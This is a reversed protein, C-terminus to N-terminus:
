RPEAKRTVLLHFHRSSDPYGYRFPLPRAPQSRWLARFEDNTARGTRLFSGLFTGYTEQVFGARKAFGPPIGTSDSVMFVMNDLLYQRMLSFDPRWLLYSAAKTMAAVRGKRELHRLLAPDKKLPGDALNAAIHRHVRLPADPSGCPRFAIEANAFTPAFDPPTWSGKLSRARERDEALIEDASYYHLGGDAEIRFYRLSVPEQGHAALAVLFFALQGPIDGRQGRMLTASTSNELALLPAVTRRVQGLSSALADGELSRLRRPDGTLELSLTTIDTADPYTTLASLLDGGGFPYVVTTPLGPPRLRALFPSAVSLYRKRYSEIRPTFAACHQQWIRLDGARFSPADDGCTVVQYALRV